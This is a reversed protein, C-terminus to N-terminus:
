CPSTYLLCRWGQTGIPGIKSIKYNAAINVYNDSSVAGAKVTTLTRQEDNVFIGVGGNRYKMTVKSWGTWRNPADCTAVLEGGYYISWYDSDQNLEVSSTGMIGGSRSAKGQLIYFGQGKDAMMTGDTNYVMFNHMITNPDVRDRICM